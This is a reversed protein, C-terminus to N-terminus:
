QTFGFSQAIRIVKNYYSYSPNYGWLAKKVNPYGCAVLYSAATYISDEANAIDKVGDGNGDVAHRRFTSPLFQMPGTAGMSSQRLTSGSAGTEVIHIAKLISPDVGFRDGASKYIVNFDSPDSYARYERSITERRRKSAEAIQARLAEEKLRQEKQALSEGLVIENAENIAFLNPSEINLKLAVPRGTISEPTKAEIPTSIMVFLSALMLLLLKKGGISQKGRRRKERRFFKNISELLLSM